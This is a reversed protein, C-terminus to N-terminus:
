DKKNDFTLVLKKSKERVILQIGSYYPADEDLFYGVRRIGGIYKFSM